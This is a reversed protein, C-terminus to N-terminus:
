GQARWHPRARGPRPVCCCPAPKHTPKPRAHQPATTTQLATMQACNQTRKKAKNAAATDPRWKLPSCAERSRPQVARIDRSRQSEPKLCPRPPRRPIPPGGRAVGQSKRQKRLLERAKKKEEKAKRKREREEERKRKREEEAAASLAPSPAEQQQQQQQQDAQAQGAAAPGPQQGTSLKGLVSAAGEMGLKDELLSRVRAAGEGRPDDPDNVAMMAAMGEEGLQQRVMDGVQGLLEEQLKQIRRARRRGEQEEKWKRIDQIVGVKAVRQCWASVSAWTAATNQAFTRVRGTAEM